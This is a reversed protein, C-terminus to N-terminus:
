RASALCADTLAAALEFPAEAAALTVPDPVRRTQMVDVFAGAQGHFGPKHESDEAAAEITRGRPDLATRAKCSELPSFEYDAGHTSFSLRWGLPSDWSSRFTAFVGRSSVGHLAMQWRFPEGLSRGLVVPNPVRGALFTLLGLGHISNTFVRREIQEDSFGRKSLHEPRESWQVDVSTVSELGGADDLARRLVSYWCRNLGLMVPTGHEEAVSQLDRLQESSVGPPKELLMPVGFPLVRRAVDYNAHLAPCVVVGDVSEDALMTEPDAYTRSVGFESARRRSEDSRACAAVIECGHARLANGHHPAIKGFGVIAIKM